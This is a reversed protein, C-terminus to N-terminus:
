AGDAPDRAAGSAAGDAPDDAAGDAAGDAANPAANAAANAAADLPEIQMLVANQPAFTGDPFAISVIRGSVGAHVSNMLKMTEVIAVVTDPSVATGIEVFPPAGPKPSRYFTGPLPSKVAFFGTVAAGQPGEARAIGATAGLDPAGSEGPSSAPPAAAAPERPAGLARSERTWAAGPDGRRLSLSFRDTEIELEDFGAADVLQLIARVDADDWDM